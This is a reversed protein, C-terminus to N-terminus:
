HVAGVNQLLIIRKRKWWNGQKSHNPPPLLTAHPLPIFCLIMQAHLSSFKTEIELVLNSKFHHSQILFYRKFFARNTSPNIWKSKGFDGLFPVLYTSFFFIITKSVISTKRKTTKNKLLFFCNHQKCMHTTVSLGNIVFISMHTSLSQVCESFFTQCTTPKLVVIKILKNHSFFKGLFLLFSLFFYPNPNTPPCTPEVKYFMSSCNSWTPTCLQMRPLQITAHIQLKSYQM